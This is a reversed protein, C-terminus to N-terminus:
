WPMTLLSWSVNLTVVNKFTNFQIVNLTHKQLFNWGNCTIEGDESKKSIWSTLPVLTIGLQTADTLVVDLHWHHCSPMTFTGSVVSLLLHTVSLVFLKLLKVLNKLWNKTLQTSLQQTDLVTLNLWKVLKPLVMKAAKLNWFQSLQHCNKVLWHSMKVLKKVNQLLFTQEKQFQLDQKNQLGLQQNVLSTLTWNQVLVTKATQKWASASSKM